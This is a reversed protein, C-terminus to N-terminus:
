LGIALVAIGLDYLQINRNRRRRCRESNVTFSVGSKLNTIGSFSAAYM